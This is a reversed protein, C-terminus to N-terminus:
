LAHMSARTELKLDDKCLTHRVRQVSGSGPAMDPDGSQFGPWWARGEEEADLRFNPLAAGDIALTDGELMSM